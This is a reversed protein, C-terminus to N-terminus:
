SIVKSIACLGSLPCREGVKISYRYMCIIYYSLISISYRSAEEHKTIPLAFRKLNARYFPALISYKYSDFRQFTNPDRVLYSIHTCWIVAVNVVLAM